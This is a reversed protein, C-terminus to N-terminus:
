KRSPMFHRRNLHLSPMSILIRVCDRYFDGEKQAQIGYIPKSRAIEEQAHATICSLRANNGRNCGGKAVTEKSTIAQSNSNRCAKQGMIKPQAGNSVALTNASSRQLM